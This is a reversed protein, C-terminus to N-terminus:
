QPLLSAQKHTIRDLDIKEKWGKFNDPFNSVLLKILDGRDEPIECIFDLISPTIWFLMKDGFYNKINKPTINEDEEFSFIEKYLSIIKDDDLELMKSSVYDNIDMMRSGGEIEESIIDFTGDVIDKMIGISKKDSM